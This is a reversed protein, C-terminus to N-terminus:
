PFDGRHRSRVRTFDGGAGGHRETRSTGNSTDRARIPRFPDRRGITDRSAEDRRGRLGVESASPRGQAESRRCGRSGRGVGVAEPDVTEVRPEFCACCALIFLAAADWPGALVM